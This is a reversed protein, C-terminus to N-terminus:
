PVQRPQLNLGQHPVPPCVPPLQYINKVNINGGRDQREKRLDIFM